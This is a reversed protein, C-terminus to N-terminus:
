ALEELVDWFGGEKTFTLVYAPVSQVISTHISFLQQHRFPNHNVNPSCTMLSAVTEAPGMPRLSNEDGKELRFIAKLPYSRRDISTRGLEGAFPVKHVVPGNQGPLVINMDDSLVRRGAELSLKSTTTKGSGSTGFFVYARDDEVVGASHVLVGGQELIRYSSIVRFFNEFAGLYHASEHSSTWLGGTLEPCWDLRGMFDLGAVRVASPQCDIDLVYAWGMMDFKRFDSEASRLVRTTVANGADPVPAIFEAMKERIADEQSVDLGSFFYPGGPLDLTVDREGWPEGARRAPFLDPHELFKEGFTM